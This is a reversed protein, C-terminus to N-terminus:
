RRTSSASRTTRSRPSTSSRTSATSTAGGSTASTSASTLRDAAPAGLDCGDYLGTDLGVVEHGAASLVARAVAGVYGGSGTLLVRM